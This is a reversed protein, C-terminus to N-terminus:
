YHGPGFVISDKITRNLISNEVKPAQFIYDLINVYMCVTKPEDKSPAKKFNLM